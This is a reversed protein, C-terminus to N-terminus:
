VKETESRASASEVSSEELSRLVAEASPRKDPDVETTAYFVSLVPEYEEEDEIGLDSPLEPRTGLAARYLSDDIDEIDFDDDDEDSEEDDEGCSMKSVHPAELALMEYVVCGLAFVDTKNTVVGDEDFVESASWPETGVYEENEDEAVELNEDLRLAVGFDCIKVVKFDGIILVNGSKMDGHLIRKERHLYDLASAVSRIVILIFNAALPTCESDRRDEIIDFLARQGNEIALIRSGDSTRKFGRFGIINPHKLKRLIEAEKEMRQTIMDTGGAGGGSTDSGTSRAVNVARNAKKIAWPSLIQGRLPSREYLFVNVGTGYGLRKLCPSPPIKLVSLERKALEASSTKPTKFAVQNPPTETRKPTSNTKCQGNLSTSAM